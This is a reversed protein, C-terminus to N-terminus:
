VAAIQPDISAPRGGGIRLRHMSVRLFEDRQQGVENKRVASWGSGRQQLFSTGNGDNEPNNSIRDAAAEDRAERAWAAVSGTKGNRLRRLCALPHFQELLNCRLDGPDGGQEVRRIADNRSNQSLGNLAAAGDKPTSTISAGTWSVDSSSDTM